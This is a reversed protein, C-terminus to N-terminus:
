LKYKYIEKYFLINNKYDFLVHYYFIVKILFSLCYVYLYLIRAKIKTYSIAVKKM